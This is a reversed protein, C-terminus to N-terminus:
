SVRIPTKLIAKKVVKGLDSALNSINTLVVFHKFMSAPDYSQEICIQIPTFGKQEAYKVAEKTDTVGYIGRYDSASPQGDSIVFLLVQHETKRRVRDVVERIAIGDRNERKAKSSGLSYNDTKKGPEQYVYLETCGDYLDDASHGYIYLDILPNNKLSERLLVATQRAAIEKSGYMSGSEDILLCVVTKDTKVKGERLYVTPVGQVAEVLKNTDLVGSRMSRHILKYDLSHGKIIKSISPIYRQVVKLDSKYNAPHGLTPLAVSKRSKHVEAVGEADLAKMLSEKGEKVSSELSSLIDSVEKEWDKSLEERSKEKGGKGEESEPSEDSSMISDSKPEEMDEESEGFPEDWEEEFEDEESSESSESSKSSESSESSESSKEEKPKTTTKTVTKSKEKEEAVDLFVEYIERAAALVKKTSDPYPTLIDKIEFLQEGFFEIDSISVTEPYRIIGFFTKLLRKLTSKHDVNEYIIKNFYRKCVGLFRALGPKEKSIEIEIREDELINVIARLVNDKPVPVRFDTYLIHAGEHVVGGLFADLREGTSMRPNHLVKTGIRIKTGDTYFADTDGVTVTTKTPLEMSCLMENGVRVAKKLLEEESLEETYFSSFSGDTKDEWGLRDHERIKVFTDGDRDFWDKALDEIWKEM